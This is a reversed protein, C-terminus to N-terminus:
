EIGWEKALDPDLQKLRHPYDKHTYYLISIGEKECSLVIGEAKKIANGSKISNIIKEGIGPVQLLRAKKESFINEPSGCYSVLHKIIKDGVGEILTSAM